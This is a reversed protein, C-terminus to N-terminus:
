FRGQIVVGAGGVRAQPSASVLFRGARELVLGTVSSALMGGGFGLFAAGVSHTTAARELARHDEATWESRDNREGFAQSGLGLAVAGGIVALGGLSATVTWGIKRERPTPALALLGGVVAGAGAGLVGAGATRLNGAGALADRCAEIPYVPSGSVCQDIPTDLRSSWRGQGGGVLGAGVVVGVAGAAGWGLAFRRLARADPRARLELVQPATPTSAEVRVELTLPEFRPDDVSVRWAGPDLALATRDGPGITKSIDPRLDSAFASVTGFTVTLPATLPRASRLVLTVAVTKGRAIKELNAAEGRQAPTLTPLALLSELHAVAHAYHRLAFRSAAANFLDSAGHGERWLAEYELAAEAFRGHEFAAQARARREEASTPANPGAAPSTSPRAEASTPANPGAAPSAPTPAAPALLLLAAVLVCVM